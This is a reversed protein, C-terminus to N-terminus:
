KKHGNVIITSIYLAKFIPFIKLLPAEFIVYAYKQTKKVFFEKDQKRLNTYIQKM